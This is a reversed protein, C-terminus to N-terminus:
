CNSNRNKGDKMKEGLANLTEELVDFGKPFKTRKTRIKPMKQEVPYCFLGSFLCLQPLQHFTSQAFVGQPSQSSVM